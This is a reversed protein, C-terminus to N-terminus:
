QTVLHMPNSAKGVARGDCNIIKSRPDLRYIQRLYEGKIMEEDVFCKIDIGVHELYELMFLVKPM